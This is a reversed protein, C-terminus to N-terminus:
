ITIVNDALSKKVLPWCEKLYKERYKPFLTAFSSEALAGHPNDEKSIGPDKWGDPVTLLDEENIEPNKGVFCCNFKVLHWMAPHTYCASVNHPCYLFLSFASLFFYSILLM